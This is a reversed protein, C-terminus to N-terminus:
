RRIMTTLMQVVRILRSRMASHNEDTLNGYRWAIRIMAGAEEASGRAIIYHRRQGAKSERGAGEAINAVVSALAREAQSAIEGPM